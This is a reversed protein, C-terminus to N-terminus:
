HVVTLPGTYSKGNGLTVVYYYTAIPAAEGNITGNWETSRGYGAAEFVKQGWRNFVLVHNNPYDEIGAIQWTDDNNDANPTFANPIRVRRLVTVTVTSQDACHGAGAALTYTT